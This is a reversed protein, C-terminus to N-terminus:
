QRELSPESIAPLQRELRAENIHALIGERLARPTFGIETRLRSDDLNDVLPTPPAQDDFGIEADPLFSRVIAAFEAATVRHGGNNYVSHALQPKLALRVLQEACDDVYLWCDRNSSSFPLAVPRGIAPLSVFDEAWLSWGRKRGHGFVVPPRACAVSIGNKRVYKEAMFENLVKM